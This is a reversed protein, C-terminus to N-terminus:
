AQGLTLISVRKFGLRNLLGCLEYCTAGTTIVDDLVLVHKLRYTYIIPDEVSYIGRMNERRDYKNLGVQSPRFQTRSLVGEDLITSSLVNKWGEAIAYSQNYGRKRRRKPHIPVPIILSNEPTLEKALHPYRSLFLLAAMHGLDSGVGYDSSYKLRHILTQLWQGEKFYWISVKWRVFGPLMTGRNEPYMRPLYRLVCHHCLSESGKPILGNCILCAKPAVIDLIQRYTSRIGSKANSKSLKSSIFEKILM